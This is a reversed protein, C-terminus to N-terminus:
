IQYDVAHQLINHEARMQLKPKELVVTTHPDVSRTLWVNSGIVSHHGIVTRGGLITANAYIVVHEEITPHRKMGRILQGDGDTPFSLAGLTVGQYLKVHEGIECTEGIVVGTGHDIFFHQGITAGPHIDIGTRSHAWETMMRPIFPIALKHLLNALRYITVAELGPYCFTVEDTSKVAPDGEYAALVDMRLIERLAPLQELFQIAKAQGLAEFDRDEDCMSGAGADHRLARAIQMTLKDHLSDILDGVHYQVNGMHLGERRRFGPYLIEKLDECCGIIVDYNPLPCHGLHNIPGGERYTEVIRQTLEPLQEKLRFDSAM